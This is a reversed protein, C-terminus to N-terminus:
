KKLGADAPQLKQRHYEVMDVLTGDFRSAPSWGLGHVKDSNLSYRVDAGSRDTSTDVAQNYDLGIVDCVKRVVQEVSYEEESSIHYAENAGGVDIIMYIAEVNDTVSLWNRVYEGSGHVIAKQGGLLRTIASPILKEPHQRRGYNNTSRTIMYPLDYTRGWAVVLQEACSKTAAYPNSPRHRDDEKFSGALIDGFVEDTSIQVFLPPRWSWSHMMNKLKMNKILELMNHVGLVNSRVFVDPGVISNDVHSEAAFNVIIDCHPIDTIDAIDVRRYQYDGAFTLDVNAAYTQKDYNIVRHGRALALEIFHSGILGLGGTVLLTKKTDLRGM